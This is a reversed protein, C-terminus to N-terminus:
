WYFQISCNTQHIALQHRQYKLRYVGSRSRYRQKHPFQGQYYSKATCFLTAV